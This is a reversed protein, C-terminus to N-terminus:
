NKLSNRVIVNKSLDFSDSANTYIIRELVSNQNHINHTTWMPGTDIGEIHKVNKSLVGIDTVTFHHDLTCSVYGTPHTTIVKYGENALDRVRKTFFLPDYDPLQGSQPPSNIILYDFEYRAPELLGPYDFLLDEKCAIPSSVELLDSLHDFWELHFQAWNRRQPHNHYYNGRGIWANVAGPPIDLGQLSIAVDECLPLLQAHYQPHCHHVFDLHPEAKCVQRLYNLHILNDGLHYENYTHIM